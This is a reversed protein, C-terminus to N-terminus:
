GTTTTTVPVCIHLGIEPADICYQGTPLVSTFNAAVGPPLEIVQAVFAPDSQLKEAYKRDMTANRLVTRATTTVAGLDIDTKRMTTIEL